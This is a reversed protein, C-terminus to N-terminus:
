IEIYPNKISHSRWIWLNVQPSNKICHLEICDRWSHSNETDLENYCNSCIADKMLKENLIQICKIFLFFLPTTFIYPIVNEKYSKVFRGIRHHERYRYPHLQNSYLHPFENDPPTKRPKELNWRLSSFVGGSFLWVGLNRYVSKQNFSFTLNM